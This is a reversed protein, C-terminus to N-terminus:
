EKFLKYVTESIEIFHDDLATASTSYLIQHYANNSEGAVRSNGEWVGQAKKLAEEHPKNKNLAEIYEYASNPFFKLPMSLGQWYYNFLKELKEKALGAPPLTVTKNEAVHTSIHECLTPSIANFVLHEIWLPIHDSDAKYKAPRYRIRGESTINNLWGQLTFDGIKLDVELDELPSAQIYPLLKEKFNEVAGQQEHYTIEGFGGYPLIGSAYVLSYDHYLGNENLAGNLLTQKLQYRQLPNLEFPESEELAEDYEELHVGLREKLFFRSPNKFFNILQTLQVTKYSIEPESLPSSIFPIPKNNENKMGEIWAENYSFLKSDNKYYRKSFAQLPHETILSGTEAYGTEIYEFLESVLVSPIKVSNDRISRGIYSIYFTHRASLLAELFLYRDDERRSRDGKRPSQDMLDFGLPRRHRPYDSDNMGLLCVIKFPISRMPQMTCFTTQGTIFRQSQNENDLHAKLYDQLVSRALPEEFQAAETHEIFQNLANRITQLVTSSKENTEFFTDLIQHFLQVWEKPKYQKNLRNKFTSLQSIFFQLQGLLISNKGEIGSYPLINNFLVKEPPMAYGLLMRQMGFHWSNPNESEGWRVGSEQVWQRINELSNEDIDFQKSIEPVELLSLIETATFRSDPLQILQLFTQILPQEKTASRDAISWPIFLQKKATKFVAEIYPAYVDIDPAMVIIDHPMLTSDQEFCHLLQDHLVEIERMPSHCIHLQLSYDNESVETIISEKEAENLLLIDTQINALLTNGEPAIFLDHDISPYQHLLESLDRGSKGLSALLSNGVTYYETADTKGHKQWLARLRSLDRQPIIDGWYSLCPNLLYYNVEAFDALRAIVDLYAPPMASAGFVTIREPLASPNLQGKEHLDIFKRILECRHPTSQEKILARWLQAQWHREKGVEWAMIWDPRYVMYQDFIDAINRALQYLKLSANRASLYHNLPEFGPKQVLLPLLKQVKWVLVEKDFSSTDPTEKLQNKFIKWIFSAPFPFEFNAALSRKKALEIALWRAMGQNQIIIVEPSFPHNLPTDFTTALHDLLPELRNSHYINLM